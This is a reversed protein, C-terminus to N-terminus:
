EGTAEDARKKVICGAVVGEGEIIEGESYTPEVATVRVVGVKKGRRKITEGSDPDKVERAPAYVDMVDGVALAFADGRNITVANEEVELIKAPFVVDATRWAIRESLERALLPMMEDTRKADTVESAEKDLVEVREVQLNSSDMIEGTTTDYIKAQASIQFRRKTKAGDRFQATANEELFSDVSTVVLFKPLKVRAAAPVTSPDFGGSDGKAGVKVVEDLDTGSVVQFKRMQVLTSTIHGDMAQIVRDFSLEKGHAVM